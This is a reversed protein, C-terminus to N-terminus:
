TAAGHERRRLEGLFAGIGRYDPVTSRDPSAIAAAATASTGGAVGPEGPLVRVTRSRAAAALRPDFTLLPVGLIAALVLHDAAVASLGHREMADAVLLTSAPSPQETEVDLGDLVHLVEAAAGGRLGRRGVLEELLAPWFAAPVTLTHGSELTARLAAIAGPRVRPEDSAGLVGLVLGVDVVVREAVSAWWARGTTAAASM